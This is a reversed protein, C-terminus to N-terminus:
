QAAKPPLGFLAREDDRKLFADLQTTLEALTGAEEARKLIMAGVLLKRRSDDKRAQASERSRARADLKKKKAKLDALRKEQAAIRQALLEARSPKEETAQTVQSADM